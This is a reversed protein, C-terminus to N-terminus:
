TFVIEVRRNQPERVGPSTPIRPDDIGHGSVAMDGRLVGLRAFAEAVANARRESLRQNYGASGSLDTYGAVELRM